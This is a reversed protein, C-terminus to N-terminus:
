NLTPCKLVERWRRKDPQGDSKSWSTGSAKKNAGCRACWHLVTHGIDDVYITGAHNQANCVAFAIEFEQPQTEPSPTGRVGPDDYEIYGSM